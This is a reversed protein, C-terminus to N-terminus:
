NNAPWPTQGYIMEYFILGVSWLDSKNTYSQKSLIQPSMYLPTGVVSRLITNEGFELNKAFGFDSIKCRGNHVLINAPKLDRHIIEHSCLYKFGNMIDRLIKLAEVEGVRRKRKIFNRLDGDECYETVIYM